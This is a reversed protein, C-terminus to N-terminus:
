YSEDFKRYESKIGFRRTGSSNNTKSYSSPTSQKYGDNEMASELRIFKERLSTGSEIVPIYKGGINEAYWDLVKQIRPLGIGDTSSMKRIDESWSAIKAPTIKVNKKSSIIESLKKALPIYEKNKEKTPDEERAIAYISLEKNEKSKNNKITRQFCRELENIEVNKNTPVKKYLLTSVKNFNIRIWEKAPTGKKKTQIIENDILFTKAKRISFDGINLQDMQQQHTLFFWGDNEPFHEEFYVHKDIYNSIIVAEILGINQMLTKNVSLYADTKLTQIVLSKLLDNENIKTRIMNVM